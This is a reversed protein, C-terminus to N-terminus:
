PSGAGAGVPSSDRDRRDPLPLRPADGPVAYLRPPRDDPAPRGDIGVGLEERVERRLAATLSEGPEVKGGPFEWLGALLGGAPREQILVRGDREIVAM